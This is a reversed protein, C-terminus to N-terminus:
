PWGSRKKAVERIVNGFLHFKHQYLARSLARDSLNTWGGTKLSKRFIIQLMSCCIHQLSSLSHQCHWINPWRIWSQSVLRPMLQCLIPPKAEGGCRSSSIPIQETPCQQWGRLVVPWNVRNPLQSILLTSPYPKSNTLVFIASIAFATGEWLKKHVCLTIELQSHWFWQWLGFLFVQGIKVLLPCSHSERYLAFPRLLSM